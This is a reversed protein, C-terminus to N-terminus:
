LLASIADERWSCLFVHKQLEQHCHYNFYTSYWRQNHENAVVLVDQAVHTRVTLMISIWWLWLLFQTASSRVEGSCRKNQGFSASNRGPCNDRDLWYPPQQSGPIMKINPCWCGNHLNLSKLILNRWLELAERYANSLITLASSSHCNDVSLLWVFGGKVWRPKTHAYM